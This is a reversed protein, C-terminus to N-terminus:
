SLAPIAITIAESRTVLLLDAKDAARLDFMDLRCTQVDWPFLQFHMPCSVQMKKTQKKAWRLRSKLM